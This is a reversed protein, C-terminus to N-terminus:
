DPDRGEPPGELLSAHAEFVERLGERDDARALLFTLLVRAKLSDLLGASILGRALLDQESGPYGYTRSLTEGDGVRSALVVPMRAALRELTPVLAGPVHGGGLAEVVVGRYGLSEVQDFFRGDDALSVKIIAVPPVDDGSATAIRPLRAPRRFIRVKGESVWGIPGTLRSGFAGISSTHMKRVYRSDHIEDNLVVVCGLGVAVPSAAVSIAALVNAPGDAGPLTPNRMAGTVVVPGATQMLLSLSFATEEITDTGQSVVVGHDGAEFRADITAALEMLDSFMIDGSPCQRFAVSTIRALRAVGPVGGLLQEPSMRPIVGGGPADPDDISAITGGMSYFTVSPLDRTPTM